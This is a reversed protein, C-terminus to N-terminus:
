EYRTVGKLADLLEHLEKLDIWDYVVTNWCGDVIEYKIAIPLSSAHPAFTQENKGFMSSTALSTYDLFTKLEEEARIIIWDYVRRLNHFAPALEHRLVTNSKM